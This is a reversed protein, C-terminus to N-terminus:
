IARLNKIFMSQYLDAKIVEYLAKESDYMEQRDASSFQLLTQNGKHFHFTNTIFYNQYGHFYYYDFIFNDGFGLNLGEPIDRWNQKHIFMLEGFGICSQNVFPEFEITGTTIPTQGHEVLGSSLGIAGM